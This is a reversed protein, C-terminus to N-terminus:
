KSRKEHEYYKQLTAVPNSSHIIKVPVEGLEHEVLYEVLIGFGDPDFYVDYVKVDRVEEVYDGLVERVSEFLKLPGRKALEFLKSADIDVPKFEDFVYVWTSIEVGELFAHLAHSLAKRKKVLRVRV